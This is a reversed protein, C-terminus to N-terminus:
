AIQAYGLAEAEQELDIIRQYATEPLVEAGAILLAERASALGPDELAASLAGRLRAVLEDDAAARTVYPLGPAAPSRALVRLGELAEPRHRALLAHTVCDTACVDAVGAAVMALSDPHGGSELVRGFFRGQDALHAVTARLASYGSQSTAHTIAATRGRLDELEWAPDDARVVIRSCYEPGACGPADYVPTAVVMLAGKFAHTLPYGCTQGFLLNPDRWVQGLDVGRTLEQPVDEVGERALARALGHWLADNAAAVEPLDYMPLSAISM